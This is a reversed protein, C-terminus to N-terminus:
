HAKSDGGVAHRMGGLQRASQDARRSIQRRRRRRGAEEFARSQAAVCAITIMTAGSGGRRWWGCRRVRGSVQLAACEREYDLMEVARVIDTVSFEFRKFLVEPLEFNRRAWSAALVRARNAPPIAVKSELMALLLASYKAPFQTQAALHETVSKDSM